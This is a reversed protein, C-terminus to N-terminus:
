AILDAAGAAHEHHPVNRRELEAVLVRMLLCFYQRNKKKLASHSRGCALQLALLADILDGTDTAEISLPVTM